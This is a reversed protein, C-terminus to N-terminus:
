VDVNDCVKSKWGIEFNVEGSASPEGIPRQDSKSVQACVACVSERLCELVCM